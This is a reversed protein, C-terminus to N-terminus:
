GVAIQNRGRAKADHVATRAREFLEWPDADNTTLTAIGVSVTVRALTVSKKARVTMPTAQVVTRIRKAERYASPQDAGYLVLAFQDGGDRVVLDGVRALGAVLSAVEALIQDAGTILYQVNIEAFHDLDVALISLPSGHRRATACDDVLRRRLFDRRPLGTLPDVSLPELIGSQM